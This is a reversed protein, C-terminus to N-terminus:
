NKYLFEIAHYGRKQAINRLIANEEELIIHLANEASPNRVFTTKKAQKKILQKVFQVININGVVARKQTIKMVNNVQFFVIANQATKITTKNPNVPINLVLKEM